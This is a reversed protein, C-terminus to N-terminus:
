LIGERGPFKLNSFSSGPTRIADSFQGYAVPKPMTRRCEPGRHRQVEHLNVVISYIVLRIRRGPENKKLFLAAAPPKSLSM